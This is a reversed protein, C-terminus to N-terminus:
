LTVSYRTTTGFYNRFLVEGTQAKYARDAQAYETSPLIIARINPFQKQLKQSYAEIVTRRIRIRKTLGGIQRIKQSFKM